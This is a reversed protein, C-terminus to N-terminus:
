LEIINATSPIDELYHSVIFAQFPSEEIMDLLKSFNNKDLASFGEDAIIIGKKNNQILIALNFATSLLIREGSSLDKFNYIKKNRILNININGKNDVNFKISFDINSILSNIIPELSKIAETIYTSSINDLEKIAEKTIIVDKDTYKYDSLNLKDELKIKRNLLREKKIRLRDEDKKVFALLDKQDEIQPLVVSIENNINYLKNNYEKVLEQKHKLSLRRKCTPCSTYKFIREREEKYNNRQRELWNKKSILSVLDNNIKNIEKNIDHLSSGLKLLNVKLIDYRKRSPYFPSSKINSRNFIEKKRKIELLKNRIKNFINEYVTFLTKKLISPSELINIGVNLDIIRFKKWFDLNDIREELYKQKEINTALELENSDKLINIHTPYGRNVIYNVKRGKEEISFKLTVGCKEGERNVLNKLGNNSYGFLAFLPADKILSSKGAGNKGRIINLKPSFTFSYSKKFNKFSHLGIEEIIM